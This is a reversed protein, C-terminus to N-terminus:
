FIDQVVDNEKVTVSFNVIKRKGNEIAQERNLNEIKIERVDDLKGESEDLTEFFNAELIEVIDDETCSEFAEICYM